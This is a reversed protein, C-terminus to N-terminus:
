CLIWEQIQLAKQIQKSKLEKVTKFIEDRHVHSDRDLEEILGILENVDM